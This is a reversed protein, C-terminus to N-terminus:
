FQYSRRSRNRSEIRKKSIVSPLHNAKCFFLLSPSPPTVVRFNCPSPINPWHSTRRKTILGCHLTSLRNFILPDQRTLWRVLLSSIPNISPTPQSHPFPPSFAPHPPCLAQPSPRHVAEASQHTIYM